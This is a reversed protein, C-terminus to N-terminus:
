LYFALNVSAHLINGVQEAWLLCVHICGDRCDSLYV